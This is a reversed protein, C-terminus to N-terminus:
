STHYKLPKDKATRDIPAQVEEIPDPNVRKGEPHEPQEEETDRKGKVWNNGAIPTPLPTTEEDRKVHYLRIPPPTSEQFSGSTPTAKSPEYPVTTRVEEFDISHALIASQLSQDGKDRVVVFLSEPLMLPNM